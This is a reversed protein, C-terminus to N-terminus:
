KARPPQSLQVFSVIASLSCLTPKFRDSVQGGTPMPLTRNQGIYSKCYRMVTTCCYQIQEFTMQSQAEVIQSAFLFVM